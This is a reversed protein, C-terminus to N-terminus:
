AEDEDPEVDGGWGDSTILVERFRSGDAAGVIGRDEMQDLIRAARAYGIRLRRQLLSASAKDSRRVIDVAQTLLADADDDEETEGPRGGPKGDRKPATIEPRYQPGGQARWHRAVDEIEKDTVLVGQLRVARPADIPQYLMDGRGLLDEAGTTDLITRSDIGSTMAFAIRSPINAKILGTIVQVSPRQTAVILHIGTARALQAIRTITAEVEYASVMMLDALEDIVIVIYPMRPEGARLAENYGGINRVGRSAFEAYRSEMTGVTWKLANVAKDAETIVETLLHPIGKYQALEVRKPDILILKVEAPTANMLFSDIIANVCVSKGSGTAGAILLHPMKALDASFPQGAVDQGLAFALKSKKSAEAHLRSALVEKLTVLDFASNPIEVGVYPEGPIPAEIRISRAALALALNDSLGEIRSLKIGDAVDLAYQTVVPGEQIRAVKVGIGFHALTERIRQGKATLDMQAASSEPADALLEISPLDWSREVPELAADAKEGDGIEALLAEEAPELTDPDLGGSLDTPPMAVPPAVATRQAGNTSPAPRERRLIVPSEDEVDNGGALRDRMRDILGPRAEADVAEDARGRAEAARPRKAARRAAEAEQEQREDRGALYAAVLDGITMNFYLLLGVVALLVLVIWAGASGVAGSLLGSVAFGFAGGGEGATVADAGGGVALHFMGLVALAVVAAGTAAMWREAPMTKMWLMVAFGALLPGAFAIGWGLLTTLVDHWPGIIAGAEPDDGSFLAIVSIIALFLLVLALGERVFRGSLVFPTPQRRRRTTRRRTTSRRRTAV